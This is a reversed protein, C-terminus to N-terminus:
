LGMGSAVQQDALESRQGNERQNAEGEHGENRFTRQLLTEEGTCMAIVVLAHDKLIYRQLGLCNQITEFSGL